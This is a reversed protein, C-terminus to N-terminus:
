KRHVSKIVVPTKPVDDYMGSHGTPVAKIKEVIDMGSIVKGFVAYGANGASKNLFDNDKVNIFFQATASNPDNTRAMAVTGLKNSLGNTGENIIPEHTKKEQLKENMGGGQIMFNSIVRHFVTGNYFGEDVYTLFNKTSVPAAKADLEIEIKGLSTEMVVVPNTESMKEKGKVTKTKKSDSKKEKPTKETETAKTETPAVTTTTATKDEAAFLNTNQLTVGFVFCTSLALPLLRARLIM